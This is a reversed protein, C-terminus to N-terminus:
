ESKNQLALTLEALLKQREESGFAAKALAEQLESVTRTTSTPATPAPPNPLTGGRNHQRQSTLREKEYNVKKEVWVKLGEDDLLELNPLLDGDYQQLLDTKLAPDEISSLTRRVTKQRETLTVKGELERLQAQFGKIQEEFTKASSEFQQKENALAQVEGTLRTVIEVHQQEAAKLKEELQKVYGSLGDHKSKWFATDKDKSPEPINGQGETVPAAVITTEEPM